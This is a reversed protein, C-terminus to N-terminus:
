ERNIILGNDNIQTNRGESNKYTGQYGRYSSQPTDYPNTNRNYSKYGDGNLTNSKPENSYYSNYDKRSNDQALVSASTLIVLLGALIINNM